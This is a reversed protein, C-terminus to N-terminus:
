KSANTMAVRDRWSSERTLQWYFINSHSKGKEEEQQGRKEKVRKRVEAAAIEIGSWSAM